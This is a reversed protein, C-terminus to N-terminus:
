LKVEANCLSLKNCRKFMNLFSLNYPMGLGHIMLPGITRIQQIRLKFDM